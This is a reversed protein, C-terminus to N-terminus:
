SDHPISHGSERQKQLLFGIGSPKEIVEIFAWQKPVPLGSILDYLEDDEAIVSKLDSPMGDCIRLPHFGTRTFLDTIEEMRFFVDHPHLFTDVLGIHYRQNEMTEDWEHIPPKERDAPDPAKLQSLVGSIGKENFLHIANAIRRLWLSNLGGRASNKKGAPPRRKLGTKKVNAHYCNLTKKLLDLKQGYDMGDAFLLRTMERIDLIDRRGQLMYVWVYAYGGKKLYRNLHNLGTEPDALHHIVGQCHIFDFPGLEPDYVLLNSWKFDINCVNQEVANRRAIDLSSTTIDIATVRKNPFLKAIEMAVNGTGCGAELITSIEPNEEIFPYVHNKFMDRHTGCLPYPFESYMKVVNRTTKDMKM